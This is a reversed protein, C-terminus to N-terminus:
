AVFEALFKLPIELDSWGHCPFIDSWCSEEQLSFLLFNSPFCCPSNLSRITIMKNYQSDNASRRWLKTFWHNKICITSIHVVKCFGHVSNFNGTSGMKCKCLKQLNTCITVFKYFYYQEWRKHLWTIKKFQLGQNYSSRKHTMNDWSIILQVCLISRVMTKSAMEIPLCCMGSIVTNTCTHFGIPFLKQLFQIRFM